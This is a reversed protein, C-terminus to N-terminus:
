EMQCTPAGLKEFSNVYPVIVGNQGVIYVASDVLLQALWYLRNTQKNIKPNALVNTIKPMHAWKKGTRLRLGSHPTHRQVDNDQSKLTCKLKLLPFDLTRKKEVYDWSWSPLLYVEYARRSYNHMDATDKTSFTKDSKWTIKVSYVMTTNQSNFQIMTIQHLSKRPFIYIHKCTFFNGRQLRETQLINYNWNLIGLILIRDIREAHRQVLQYQCKKLVWNSNGGWLKSPVKGM